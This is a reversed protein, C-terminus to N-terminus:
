QIVQDGSRPTAGSRRPLVARVTFSGDQGSGAHLTGGCETARERMGRIGTGTGDGGIVAHAHRPPPDNAISLATGDADHSISVRVAAGPAHRAANTIAEQIIRYAAQDVAPASPVAQGDTRIEVPIGCARTRDALVAIRDAFQTAPTIALSLVLLYLDDLMEATTDRLVTVHERALDPASAWVRRAATAQMVIITLSHGVADHLERAIRARDRAAARRAQGAQEQEVQRTTDALATLTQGAQHLVRGAAWSGLAVAAATPATLIHFQAAPDAVVALTGGAM